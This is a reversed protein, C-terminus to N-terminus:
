VIAKKDAIGPQFNQFKVWVEGRNEVRVELSDLGRASPSDTGLGQGLDFAAIALVPFDRKAERFVVALSASTLVSWM